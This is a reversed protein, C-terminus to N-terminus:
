RIVLRSYLNTDHHALHLDLHARKGLSRANGTFIPTVSMLGRAYARYEQVEEIQEVARHESCGQQRFGKAKIDPSPNKNSKMGGYSLLTVPELLPTEDGEGNSM